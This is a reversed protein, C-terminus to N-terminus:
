VCCCCATEVCSFIRATYQIISHVYLVIYVIITHHLLAACKRLKFLIVSRGKGKMQNSHM